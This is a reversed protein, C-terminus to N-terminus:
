ECVPQPYYTIEVTAGPTPISGGLLRVGNLEADYEWQSDELFDANVLVALSEELPQETLGYFSRDARNILSWPLTPLENTWSSQCIDIWQGQTSSQLEYFGSYRDGASCDQAAGIGHYVVEFPYKTGMQMTTLYDNSDGPSTDAEDSLGIIHLMANDRRFGQNCGGHEQNEGVLALEARLLGQSSELDPPYKAVMESFLGAGVDVGVSGDIWMDESAVCGDSLTVAALRFDVNSSHITSLFDEMENELMMVDDTTSGSRDVVFMIDMARKGAEWHDQLPDGFITGQINLKSEPQEPDDSLITLSGFDQSEYPSSAEIYLEAVTAEDGPGLVLPFADEDVNLTLGPLEKALSPQQITLDGDGLNSATVTRSRDCGIVLKGFGIVDGPDLSISGATSAPDWDPPAPLCAGLVLLALVSCTRM